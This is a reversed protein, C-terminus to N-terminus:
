WTKLGVFKELILLADGSDVISDPHPAGAILPAVDGRTIQEQTPTINGIAVNLAVVVDAIDVKGDGDIDGTPYIGLSSTRVPEIKYNPSGMSAPQEGIAGAAIFGASAATGAGSMTMPGSIRFEPSTMTVAFVNVPIALVALIILQLPAHRM